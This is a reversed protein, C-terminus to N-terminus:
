RFCKLAKRFVVKDDGAKYFDRILAEEEYGKRRYFLRTLEFNDLGSTEVLLLREGREVLAQEVHRLLATGLGKGQHNPHVGIFYLNWVGEACQEPAYYAAGILKSSDEDVVWCDEGESNGDLHEHLMGSLDELEHPQFLGTAEAVALLAAEDTMLASRIM